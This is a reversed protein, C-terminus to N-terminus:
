IEPPAIAKSLSKLTSTAYENRAGNVLYEFTPNYYVEPKHGEKKKRKLIGKKVADDLAKRVNRPLKITVFLIRQALVKQVNAEDATIEGRQLKDMIRELDNQNIKFEKSETIMVREYKKM